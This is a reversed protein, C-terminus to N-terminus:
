AAEVWGQDIYATAGVRWLRLFQAHRSAQADFVREEVVPPEAAGQLAEALV